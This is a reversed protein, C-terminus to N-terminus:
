LILRAFNKGHGTRFGPPGSALAFYRLLGRDRAPAPWPFSCHATRQPGAPGPKPPPMEVGAHNKAENGGTESGGAQGALGEDVEAPQAHYRAHHALGPLGVQGAHHHGGVVLADLAVDLLKAALGHEGAGVVGAAGVAHPLGELLEAARGGHVTDDVNLAVLGENVGGM